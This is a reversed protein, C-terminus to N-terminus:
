DNSLKEELHAIEDRLKYLFKLKRVEDAASHHSQSCDTALWDKVRQLHLRIQTQMEEDLSELADIDQAHKIDELQERWEMQQMLFLNDQMTTKEHNLDIGKLSLLYEARPLPSKLTSYADNLQASQQVAILKQKDSATAFRDPHSVKQLKQYDASLQALDLDFGVDINFLEFYNM